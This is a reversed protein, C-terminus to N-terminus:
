DHQWPYTFEIILTSVGWSGGESPCEDRMDDALMIAEEKEENLM